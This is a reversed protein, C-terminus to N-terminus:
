PLNRAYPVAQLDKSKINMTRAVAITEKVQSQYPLEKQRYMDALADMYAGIPEPDHLAGKQRQCIQQGPHRPHFRLHPRRIRGLNEVSGPDDSVGLLSPRGDSPPAGKLMGVHYAPSVVPEIGAFAIPAGIKEATFIFSNTLTV